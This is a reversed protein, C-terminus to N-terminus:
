AADEDSDPTAYANKRVTDDMRAVYEPNGAM